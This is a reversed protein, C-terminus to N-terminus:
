ENQLEEWFEVARRTHPIVITGGVINAVAFVEFVEATNVGNDKCKELHYKICDDCRLVMSAVLGLMEKTKVPLAGEAYTNTDLNFLRKLVVNDASLIKENMKARYENFEKIQSM